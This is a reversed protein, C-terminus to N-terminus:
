HPKPTVEDLYIFAPETHCAPLACTNATHCPSCQEAGELGYRLYFLGHVKSIDPITGELRHPFAAEYEVTTGMPIMVGASPEQSYVIAGSYPNSDPRGANHARLGREDLAARADVDFRALLDPVEVLQTEREILLTVASGRFAIRGGPPDQGVVAESDFPPLDPGSEYRAVVELGAARLNARAVGLEQAQAPTITLKHWAVIAIMAVILIGALMWAFRRGL